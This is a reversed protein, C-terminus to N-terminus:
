KFAKVNFITGDSGGMASVKVDVRVLSRLGDNAFTAFVYSCAYFSESPLPIKNQYWVKLDNAKVYADWDALATSGSQRAIHAAYVRGGARGVSFECGSFPGSGVWIQGGAPYGVTAKTEAYPVWLGEGAGAARKLKIAGTGDNEIEAGYERVLVGAGEPRATLKTDLQITRNICANWNEATPQM